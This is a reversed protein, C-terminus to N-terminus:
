VAHMDYMIYIFLGEGEGKDTESDKRFASHWDSIAVRSCISKGKKVM